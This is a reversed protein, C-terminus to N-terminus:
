KSGDKDASYTMTISDAVKSLANLSNFGDQWAQPDLDRRTIRMCGNITLMGILLCIILVLKKM